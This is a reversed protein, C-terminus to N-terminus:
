IKLSYHIGSGGDLGEYSKDPTVHFVYLKLEHMAYYISKPKVIQISGTPM